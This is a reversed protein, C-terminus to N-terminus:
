FLSDSHSAPQASEPEKPALADGPADGGFPIAEGQASGSTEASETAPMREADFVEFAGGESGPSALLGSSSDVRASVVGSPQPFNKDAVDKLVTAMYSMWMPLATHGGTEDDGLPQSSDFGVWTVAILQDAAYGNFWADKQENTTGTKGALDGRGLQLAKRATGKQVVGQLLSHMLYHIQPTLIRPAVAEDAVGDPNCERCARQPKAQYVIEGNRAEVREVFYPAVLFGGNAFVAYTRAMDMPTATGSGLALSLGYPLQEKSFGFRLATDIVKRIGLSNILRVSIMNTSHALAERLSIPGQYKGNYNQPRWEKQQWPDYYSFPSDDVVSAPTYGHEMAATYVIPKFGSGPQRSAQVVRNYKSRSFDFGGVLALVAGDKPNLSVLAGEVAPVQCLERNEVTGCVRVVDGVKVIEGASRPLTGERDISIFKRAWKLGEWPIDAQINGDFRVRISKEGVAAVVAPITDGIRPITRLKESTADPQKGALSDEAGRFGHRQDYEHLISLLAAQAANQHFSDLTTYVKFGSEYAVEGFRAVIFDRVMEALYPAHLEINVANNPATDLPMASAARFQEDTIFKLKRMRRLVYNRRTLAQDPASFPNYQSPAKPLGALTAHQALTLEALPKGFYIQAAVGVGYARQGLYIKNLYLELIEQKSLEREIKLALFIEKFKRLFTKESSLFFNRAVQMTITSGGQKKEGTSAFKLAARLLGHYDVGPHRFFRDDEAAVIAQILTSPAESYHIPIRKKEGFQSILKGDRSYVSLPIQLQVDRLSDTPPLQPEIYLYLALIGVLVLTGGSLGTAVM